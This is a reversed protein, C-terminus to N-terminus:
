VVDRPSLQRMHAAAACACACAVLCVACRVERALPLQTVARYTEDDLDLSSQYRLEHAIQAECLEVGGTADIVSFPMRARLRTIAPYHRVFVAYRAKCLALSKDTEREESCPIASTTNEIQFEFRPALPSASRSARTRRGSRAACQFMMTPFLM